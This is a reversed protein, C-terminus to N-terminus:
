AGEELVLVRVDRPGHAGRVLAGMDATASPGTAIIASGRTRGIEDDLADVATKMESVIDSERVVAVHRDVFLSVLESGRDTMRLVLSGYEGIGLRAGTVGTTAERLSAPTPDIEVTTQALSLSPDDFTDSLSVGVAPQAVLEDIREDLSSADTRTVPIGLDDLSSAFTSITAAM